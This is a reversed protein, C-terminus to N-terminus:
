ELGLEKIKQAVYDRTEQLEKDDTEREVFLVRASSSCLDSDIETQFAFHAKVDHKEGEVFPFRVANKTPGFLSIKWDDEGEELSTWGPYVKPIGERTTEEDNTRLLPTQRLSLLKKMIEHQEKITWAIVARNLSGQNLTELLYGSMRIGPDVAVVIDATRIDQERKPAMIPYMPKEDHDFTEVATARTRLSEKAAHSQLQGYTFALIERYTKGRLWADTHVDFRGEAQSLMAAMGAEPPYILAVNLTKESKQM